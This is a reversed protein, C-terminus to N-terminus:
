NSGPVFNRRGILLACIKRFEKSMNCGTGVCCTDLDIPNRLNVNNGRPAYPLQVINLETPTLEAIHRAESLSIGDNTQVEHM